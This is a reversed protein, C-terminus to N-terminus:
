MPPITRSWSRGRRGTIRRCSPWARQLTCRSAMRVVSWMCTGGRTPIGNTRWFRRLGARITINSRAKQIDEWHANVIDYGRARQRRRVARTAYVCLFGPAVTCYRLQTGLQRDRLGARKHNHIDGWYLGDRSM